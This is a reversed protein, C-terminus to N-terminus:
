MSFTELRGWTPGVKVKVPLAVSLKIAQEMETKVIQAVQLVDEQNVEYILEDHLQLVLYGGSPNGVISSHLRKSRRRQSNSDNSTENKVRHPKKTAPFVESLKNDINVMAIKVLDAASGQVTTNVAQREAHNRSHIIADHIAPLFRKRGQITQVYGHEKCFAITEKMYTKLGSYKTKFSEIFYGADDESVDLQEALAKAGIGYIMGYCVQKAQQRQKDNVEDPSLAKWEAAILKFVDGGSSLIRLLKKDKCLHAIIRLELQSYDAALMVGGKYPVFAHRMSVSFANGQVGDTCGASQTTQRHRTRSARGQRKGTHAMSVSDSGQTPSEGIVTPMEIEFDKPINQLNPESMTVRGTATHIQCVGYIRDMQLKCNSVKEKQLPYVVKSMASNIRRWELIIGPLSHFAKLKQLIDKATSFQKPLRQRGRNTTGLTRRNQPMAPDGNPPLKLEVYLVQAIDDPSTLCFSHNVSKYAQEELAALKAMMINKQTECERDSFGMGNLEMRALTMLSPMEVQTFAKYLGETQLNCTLQNMLAFVTVSEVTARMRASGPNQVVVGLGGTGIGGGIGELLHSESPLFQHVMRHLNKEKVGPDLLWCAVKPDQCRGSLLVGCSTSLIKFQQKAGYLVKTVTQRHKNQSSELIPKIRDLRKTVSLNTDLPPAAMSDDVDGNTTNSQLSVYYADKDGWCVSLGTLVLDEGDVLFGDVPSHSVKAKNFKAGIGGGPQTPCHKECAVSLSYKTKSRWETLFTEFLQTDACVDIITFSGDTCPISPSPTLESTCQIKPSQPLVDPEKTCPMKPTPSVDLDQTSIDLCLNLDQQTAVDDQHTIQAVTNINSNLLKTEQVSRHTDKVNATKQTRLFFPSFRNNAFGETGRMFQPTKNLSCEDPPTPPIVDSGSDNTVSPCNRKPSVLDETHKAKRPDGEDSKRKRRTKGVVGSSSPNKSTMDKVSSSTENKQQQNLTSQTKGLTSIAKRSSKPPSKYGAFMDLIAVTGPSFKSTDKVTSTGESSVQVHGHNTGSETSVANIGDHINISPNQVDPEDFCLKPVSQTFGMDSLSFSDSMDAAIALDNALQSYPVVAQDKNTQIGLNGRPVPSISDLVDTQEQVEILRQSYLSIKPTHVNENDKQIPTSSIMNQTLAANDTCTSHFTESMDMALVLDEQLNDYSCGDKPAEGEPCVNRNMRNNAKLNTPGPVVLLPSACESMKNILHKSVLHETGLKDNKKSDKEGAMSVDQKQLQAYLMTTTEDKNQMTACSTSIAIDQRHSPSVHESNVDRQTCFNSMYKMVQSDVSTMSVDQSCYLSQTDVVEMDASTTPHQNQVGQMETTRGAGLELNHDISAMSIDIDDYMDLSEVDHRNEQLACNDEGTAMDLNQNPRREDNQDYIGNKDQLELDMQTSLKDVIVLSAKLSKDQKCATEEGQEENATVQELAEDLRRSNSTRCNEDKALKRKRSECLEEVESSCTKHQRVRDGMKQCDSPLGAKKQITQRTKCIDVIHTNQICPDSHQHQQPCPQHLGILESTASHRTLGTDSNGPKVKDDSDIVQAKCATLSGVKTNSGDSNQEMTHIDVTVTQKRGSAVNKSKGPPSLIVVPATRDDTSKCKMTENKPSKSKRRGRVRSLIAKRESSSRSMSKSPGNIPTNMRSRSGGTSTNLSVNGPKWQIGLLGVDQQVLQKAESVILKAAESETLGKKGTAWICRSKRREAAEYEEEHDAKRTSQFPVANRLLHEIDTPSTQAIVALSHYGGNYLVRARQGNLLSIRVLECLERQVGFNLRSQFQALLIELNFWGLRNCFVTVMGAFTAASQQLSQLQGKTVGYKRSLVNLPAENVLEELLMATYFRKHIALLRQQKTTVTSTGRQVTRALFREEVGVLEGVRKKDTSLSEWIALYQYWDPSIGQDYIPTVQYIIHLENELVFSKRARQLEAFVLLAEDPSLSSSLTASGLQSAHYKQVSDGNNIRELRIFENDELFRVCCQISQQTNDNSQDSQTDLSAALLTSGAYRTVEDPTSAVGSVIVELIARKMSSTTGEGKQKILCSQVSPLQSRLLTTGKSKESTKCVLISEGQTDVGKRGARGSMQKYTLTDLVSRNFMPTRIIVRRAPLNVGSSLTSTAILIKLMGQRFAGEIIDREDFTLGAHHYAVAYPVTRKLVSDIGVPTRKLQEIVDTLGERNFQTPLVESAKRFGPPNSLLKYIQKAIMESLKECWNKTPCFILVSHGQSITEFCLPIIHEDDGAVQMTESIESLKKMESNYITSGIKICETLPVPRFDTKYLDAELWKALLDLNPLTASMGIIQIPNHKTKNETRDNSTNNPQVKSSVYKIKTLLLELLYGRHSDGVMHLEDVVIMGLQDLKNEELLRNVLSNAKEITCVAVDLTNFGGAPSQNGMYGEVRVGAEQFMTQLYFMKERAVSVFPLIVIAKQKTELVRKLILLEAVMTKGASTPASYVLNSGSLVREQSLCEAQWDFMQTIGKSHYSKLVVDPLGWSSLLLKNPTSSSPSTNPNISVSTQSELTVNEAELVCTPFGQSTGKRNSNDATSIALNKDNAKERNTIKNDSSYGPSQSDVCHVTTLQESHEDTESNQWIGAFLQKPNVISPLSDDQSNDAVQPCDYVPPIGKKDTRGKHTKPININNGTAASSTKDRDVTSVHIEKMGHNECTHPYNGNSTIQKKSQTTFTDNTHNVLTTNNIRPKNHCFKDKTSIATANNSQTQMKSKNTSVQSMQQKPKSVQCSPHQRTEPKDIKTCNDFKTNKHGMSPACKSKDEANNRNPTCCYVDVNGHNQEDTKQQSVMSSSGGQNSNGQNSDNNHLHTNYDQEIQNAAMLVDEDLDSELSAISLSSVSLLDRREMDETSGAARPFNEKNQQLNRPFGDESKPPLRSRSANQLRPSRRPIAFVNKDKKEQDRSGDCAKDVQPQFKCMNPKAVFVTHQGLRKRRQVTTVVTKTREECKTSREMRTESGMPEYYSTGTGVLGKNGYNGVNPKQQRWTQSLKKM